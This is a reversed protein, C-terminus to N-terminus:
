FLLKLGVHASRDLVVNDVTETEFQIRRYGLYARASPTVEFQLRVAIEGYQEADSFSTINPAFFGELTLDVPNFRSPLLLLGAQFGVALASVTTDLSTNEDVQLTSDSIEAGVLRMGASLQYQSKRSQRYGRALLTTHLM